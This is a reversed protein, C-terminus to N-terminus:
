LFPGATRKTLSAGAALAAISGAAFTAVLRRWRRTSKSTFQESM